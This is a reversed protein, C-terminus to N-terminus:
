TCSNAPIGPLNPYHNGRFAVLAQDTVTREVNLVAGFPAPMPRLPEAVALAGVTTRAGDRRRARDDLRACRDLSAQAIM